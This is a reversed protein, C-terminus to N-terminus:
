LRAQKKTAELRQTMIQAVKSQTAAKTKQFVRRAPMTVQKARRIQGDSLRFQLFPKSRPRIIGGEEHLKLIRGEQGGAGIRGIWGGSAQEIKDHIAGILGAGGHRETLTHKVPAGGGHRIQKEKLYGIVYTTATQVTQRAPKSGLFQTIKRRLEEDGRLEYDFQV